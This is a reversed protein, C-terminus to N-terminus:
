RAIHFDEFEQIYELIQYVCNGINKNIEDAWFRFVKYGMYELEVNNNKDNVINREIKPIWYERNTKIKKKKKNWNYGHWFEGDIFITLKYKKISIDPTGPLSKDNIRYRLGISWLLKRLKIEPKTDKSRIKKMIESRVKTTSFGYEKKFKLVKPKSLESKM